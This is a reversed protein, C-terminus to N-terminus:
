LFRWLSEPARGNKFRGYAWCLPGLILLGLLWYPYMGRIDTQVLQGILGYLYLHVLYFFLPVRGYLTLPRLWGAPLRALLALLVLNIGLTLLLFTLSPPYKVLNFFSIWGGGVPPRINGFGGWWRLIAFLLLASIGLWQALQYARMRGEKKQKRGKILYRGYGIGLGMVGLWPMIPYLVLVDGSFGPLLWLRFLLPYAVFGTRTEPLLLQTAVILAVSLGVLWRTPLRLFLTGIIMAGGLGYLVGFYITGTMVGGWTWAPNELGFQLLILLGGRLLLHRSIQGQSWGRQRRSDALLVIGAGMLFFFGPAALHTVLRTLFTLPPQGAYNPFLDAWLEPELKGHAIFSNAHDLAMLIIIVGRLGDLPALRSTTHNM